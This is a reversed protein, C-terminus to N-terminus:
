KKIGPKPKEEEEDEGQVTYVGSGKGMSMREDGETTFVTVPENSDFRQLNKTDEVHVPPHLLIRDELGFWEAHDATLTRTRDSLKQVVKFSGTLRAHKKTKAYEYELRDCTITAPHKRASSPASEDDANPDQVTAKGDEVKVAAPAPAPAPADKAKKPKVLIEVNGTLVLIRKGKSYDIDAQKGTADAQPDTMKLNGTAVATKVKESLHWKDAHMTTGEDSVAVVDAFDSEGTTENRDMSAFQINWPVPKKSEVKTPESKLAAPKGAIKAQSLASLGAAGLLLLGASPILLIRELKM